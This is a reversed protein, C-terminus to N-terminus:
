KDGLGRNLLGNKEVEIGAAAHPDNFVALVGLGGSEFEDATIAEPAVDVVAFGQRGAMGIEHGPEIANRDVLIGVAISGVIM